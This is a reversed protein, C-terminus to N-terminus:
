CRKDVELLFKESIELLLNVNAVVDNRRRPSRNRNTQQFDIDLEHIIKNRIGFADTFKKIDACLSKTPIDFYSAIQFVQDKSQLSESTLNSQFWQILTDRPSLSTISRSMIEAAGKADRVMHKEVFVAFRAAAGNDGNNSNLVSPLADLVLQKIVADLGSSAFVLMARLLDQESDTPTGRANRDRRVQEFSSLFSGCTKNATLLINYGNLCLASKPKKPAGILNSM